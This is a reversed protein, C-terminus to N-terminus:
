TLDFIYGCQADVTKIVNNKGTIGFLAKNLPSLIKSCITMHNNNARGTYYDAIIESAYVIQGANNIFRALLYANRKPLIVPKGHFTILGSGYSVFGQYRGSLVTRGDSVDGFVSSHEKTWLDLERLRNELNSLLQEDSLDIEVVMRGSPILGGANTFANGASDNHASLITIDKEDALVNIITMEDPTFTIRITTEGPELQNDRLYSFIKEITLRYNEITLMLVLISYIGKQKM